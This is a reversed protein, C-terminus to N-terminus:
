LVKVSVTADPRVPVMLPASQTLLIAASPDDQEYMKSFYRQSVLSRIDQIAGFAQVGAVGDAGPAVMTVTGPPMYSHKVGQEDRYWDQYVWIMFNGWQGKYLNRKQVAPLIGPLPGGLSQFTKFFDRFKNNRQMARWVDPTLIVESGAAGTAELILMSWDELDAGIDADPDSWLDTGTLEITHDPNRGFDVTVAPYGDGVVTVAGTTLAQACMWEFRRDCSRLQKQLAMQTAITFRDQPSLEGKGPEEGAARRLAEQPLIPMKPKVYAPTFAQVVRGERKMPKGAVLPSVFPAISENETLREFLIEATTSEYVTPFYRYLLFNEPEFITQILQALESTDFLSFGDM